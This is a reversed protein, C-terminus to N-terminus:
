GSTRVLTARSASGTHNRFYIHLRDDPTEVWEPCDYGMGSRTQPLVPRPYKEWALLDKNRALGSSWRATTYPQDTSGEYVM